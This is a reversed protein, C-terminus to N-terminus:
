GRASSAGSARAAAKAVAYAGHAREKTWPYRVRDLSTDTKIKGLVGDVYKSVTGSVSPHLPQDGHGDAHATAVALRGESLQDKLTGIYSSLNRHNAELSEVQAPTLNVRLAHYERVM